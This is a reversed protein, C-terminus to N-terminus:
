PTVGSYDAFLSTRPLHQRIDNISLLKSRSAQAIPVPTVVADKEHSPGAARAILEDNQGGVEFSWPSQFRSCSSSWRTVRCRCLIAPKRGDAIADPLALRRALRTGVGARVSGQGGSAGASPAPRMVGGEVRGTTQGARV